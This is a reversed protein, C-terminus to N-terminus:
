VGRSAVGTGCGRIEAIAEPDGNSLAITEATPDLDVARRATIALQADTAVFRDRQAPPVIDPLHAGHTVRPGSM